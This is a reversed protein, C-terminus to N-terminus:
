KRRVELGKFDLVVNVSNHALLLSGRPLRDWAAEAIEVGPNIALGVLTRAAYVAGPGVAAGANSIFTNGCFVGAALTVAPRHIANIAYILGQVRPSIASWPIQFDQQMAQRMAPFRAPDYRDHHLVSAKVLTALAEGVVRQEKAPSELPAFPREVDM